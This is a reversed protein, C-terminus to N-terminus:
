RVPAGRLDVCRIRPDRSWFWGAVNLGEARSGFRSDPATGPGRNLSWARRGPQPRAAQRQGSRPAVSGARGPQVRRQVGFGTGDDDIALEVAKGNQELSVAVRSPRPLAEPRQAPGGAPDAAIEHSSEPMVKISTEPCVFRATIGTDKQFYEVIRRVSAGPRECDVEAPRMGRLFSRVDSVINKSLEQLERLDQM